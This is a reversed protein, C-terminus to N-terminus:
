SEGKRAVPRAYCERRSEGACQVTDDDFRAYEMPVHGCERCPPVVVLEPKIRALTAKIAEQTFPKLRM